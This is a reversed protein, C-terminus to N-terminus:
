GHHLEVVLIFYIIFERKPFRVNGSLFYLKRGHTTHKYRAARWYTKQILKTTKKGGIIGVGRAIGSHRPPWFLLTIVIICYYHVLSVHWQKQEGANSMVCPERTKWLSRRRPRSRPLGVDSLNWRRAEVSEGDAM